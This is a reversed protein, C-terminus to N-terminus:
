KFRDEDGRCLQTVVSYFRNPDRQIIAGADVRGEQTLLHRSCLLCNRLNQCEDKGPQSAIIVCKGDLGDDSRALDWIM